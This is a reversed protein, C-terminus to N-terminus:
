NKTLRAVQIPETGEMEVQLYEGFYRLKKNIDLIKVVRQVQAEEEKIVRRKLEHKNRYLDFRGNETIHEM